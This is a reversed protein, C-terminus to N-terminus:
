DIVLVGATNVSVSPIALIVVICPAYVTSTSESVKRITRSAPARKKLALNAAGHDTWDGDASPYARRRFECASQM